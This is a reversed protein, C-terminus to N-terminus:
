PAVVFGGLLWITVVGALLLPLAYLIAALHGYGRRRLAFYYLAAALIIAVLPMLAWDSPMYKM